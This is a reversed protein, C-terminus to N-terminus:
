VYMHPHTRLSTWVSISMMCPMFFRVNRMKSDLAMPSLQLVNKLTSLIQLNFFTELHPIRGYCDPDVSLLSLYRSPGDRLFSFLLQQCFFIEWITEVHKDPAISVHWIRGRGRLCVGLHLFHQAQLSIQSRDGFHQAQANDRFVPGGAAREVVDLEKLCM